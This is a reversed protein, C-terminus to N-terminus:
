RRASKKLYRNLVFLCVFVPVVAFYPWDNWIASEAELLRIPGATSGGGAAGTVQVQLRWVGPAPPRLSASYLLKNTAQAHTADGLIDTEGAKTLRLAIAADLVVENDAARQLMVSFDVPGPRLPVPATFVTVIYSGARERWQMAGGDAKVLDALMVLCLLVRYLPTV